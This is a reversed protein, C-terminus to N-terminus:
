YEPRNTTTTYPYMCKVNISTVKEMRLWDYLIRRKQTVFIIIFSWDAKWQAIPSKGLTTSLCTPVYICANNDYSKGGTTLWM